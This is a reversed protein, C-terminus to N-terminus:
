PKTSVLDSFVSDMKMLNELIKFYMYECPIDSVM